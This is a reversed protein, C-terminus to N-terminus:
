CFWTSSIYPSVYVYILMPDPIQVQQRAVGFCWKFWCPSIMLSKDCVMTNTFCRNLYIDIVGFLFCVVNKDSCINLSIPVYSNHSYKKPSDAVYWPGKKVFSIGVTTWIQHFVNKKCDIGQGDRRQLTKHQSCFCLQRTTIVTSFNLRPYFLIRDFKLEPAFIKLSISWLYM